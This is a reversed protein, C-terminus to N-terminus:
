TKNATGDESPSDILFKSRDRVKAIWLPPRARGSWTAGTKPDRYKAPLKGSTSSKAKKSAGAPRGRRKAPAPAHTSAPTAASADIDATTLGHASMLTRIENLILQNRKAILQAQQAKLKELQAQIQDLTPM